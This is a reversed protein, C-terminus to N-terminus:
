KGEDMVNGLSGTLVGVGALLVVAFLAPVWPPPLEAMEIEEGAFASGAFAMLGTVFGTAATAVNNNNNNNNNSSIMMSADDQPPAFLDDDQPLVSVVVPSTTIRPSSSVFTTPAFAAVAQCSLLSSWILLKMM